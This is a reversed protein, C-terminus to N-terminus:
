LSCRTDAVGAEVHIATDHHYRTTSGAPMQIDPLRVIASDHMLHYHSEQTVRVCREAPDQRADAGLGM